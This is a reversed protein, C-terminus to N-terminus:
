CSRQGLTLCCFALVPVCIVLLAFMQHQHKINLFVSGCHATLQGSPFWTLIHLASSPLIYIVKYVLPIVPPFMFDCQTILILMWRITCRMFLMLLPPSTSSSNESKRWASRMKSTGVRQSPGWSIPSIPLLSFLRRFYALVFALNVDLSYANLICMYSVRFVSPLVRFEGQLATAGVLRSVKEPSSWLRQHCESPNPKPQAWRKWRGRHESPLSSYIASGQNLSYVHVTSIPASRAWILFLCVCFRFHVIEWVKKAVYSGVYSWSQAM